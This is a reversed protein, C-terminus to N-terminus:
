APGGPLERFGLQAECWGAVRLLSAEDDARGVLQLAAPMGKEDLACPLAVVPVGAVSWPAQFIPTGTTKLTAPATTDTAPMVLADCAGQALWRGVRRRFMRQWGLSQAYDVAATQLAEDLLGALMPGYQDRREPFWRRHWAAAEVGMIRRHHFLVEGFDIGPPPSVHEVLAGAVRLKDLAAAILKRMTPDAEDRFFGELLGLRPPRSTAPNTGAVPEGCASPPAHNADAALRAEHDQRGPAVSALTQWLVALDDVVRAMPGLHDLHYSVPVVGRRSLSGFTPKLTSVGCYAAPRVLSGGTQSGLAAFCMRMAVAVASGSSSGGPTHALQVDWPNRTPSPDFCAFEVTVTKGLIIAGQRRLAAVVPADTQARHGARLPSGALTPWGAVDIIDKVGVPVGHLPGRLRGARAEAGLQQAARRAGEADVMVWAHLRPDHQEIQRLAAEVVEPPALEARRYREVLQRIPLWAFQDM